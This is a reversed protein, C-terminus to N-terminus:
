EEVVKRIKLHLSRNEKNGMNNPLVPENILDYGGITTENSYRRAIEGWIEILHDQNEKKTWLEAVGDADAIEGPSQGGPAAHM